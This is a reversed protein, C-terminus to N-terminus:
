KGYGAAKVATGILTGAQEIDSGSKYIGMTQFDANTGGIVFPPAEVTKFLTDVSGKWSGDKQVDVRVSACGTLLIAAACALFVCVFAVARIIQEKM